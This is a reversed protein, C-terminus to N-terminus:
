SRKKRDGGGSVTGAEVPGADDTRVVSAQASPNAEPVPPPSSSTVAQVRSQGESLAALTEYFETATTFSQGPTLNRRLVRNEDESANPLPTFGGPRGGLLEYVLLGVRIVGQEIRATGVMETESGTATDGPAHARGLADMKVVFAPWEDLPCRLVLDGSPEGFGEPFHVMIQRLDMELWLNAARATNWCRAM